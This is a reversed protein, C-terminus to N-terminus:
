NNNILSSNVLASDDDCSRLRKLLFILASGGLTGTIGGRCSLTCGVAAHQSKVLPEILEMSYM